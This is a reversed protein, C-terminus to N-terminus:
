ARSGAATMTMSAPMGERYGWGGGPSQTTIFLKNLVKLTDPAVQRAGSRLGEYIGLLAYHTNSGDAIRGGGGGQKRYTWGDPMRAELLWQVNRQIRERDGPQAALAFAMTQLGAVYTQTPPIGRLYELGDQIAKDSPPVGATLLALLALSTMGGPYAVSESGIEWTGGRQEARLKAIGADVAKRVQEVFKGGASAPQAQPTFNLIFAATLVGVLMRKM